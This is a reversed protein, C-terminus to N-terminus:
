KIWDKDREVALLNLYVQEDESLKAWYKALCEYGIHDHPGSDELNPIPRQLPVIIDWLKIYLAQGIGDWCEAVEDARNYEFSMHPKIMASDGQDRRIGM